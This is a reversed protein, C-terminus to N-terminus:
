IFDSQSYAVTRGFISEVEASTMYLIEKARTIGVYCLRRSEEMQSIM